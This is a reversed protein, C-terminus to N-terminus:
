AACHHSRQTILIGTIREQMAEPQQYDFRLSIVVDPASRKM